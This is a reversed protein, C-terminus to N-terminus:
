RCNSIFEDMTQRYEKGEKKVVLSTENKGLYNFEIWFGGEPSESNWYGQKGETNLPPKPIFIEGKGAKYKKMEILKFASLM